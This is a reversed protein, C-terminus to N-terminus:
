MQIEESAAVSINVVNSPSMRMRMPLVAEQLGQMSPRVLERFETGAPTLSVARKQRSFLEVGLLAELDLIQRSVASQTLGLHKGAKTFSLEAAAHEFVILTDLSPLAAHLSRKM